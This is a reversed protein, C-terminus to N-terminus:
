INDDRIDLYAFYENLTKILCNKDVRKAANHMQKDDTVLLITDGEVKQKAFYLIYEDWIFNSRSKSKPDFNGNVFQSWVWTRFNLPIEYFQVFSAIMKQREEESVTITEGQQILDSEIAVLLAESSMQKFRDSRIYDLFETRRKKDNQFPPWCEFSPDIQKCLLNSCDIYTNEADNVFKVIQNIQASNECLTKELDCSLLYLLNGINHQTNTAKKNIKNFFMWAIQSEPLPLMRFCQSDGTHKYMIKCASACSKFSRSKNEDHLHKILEMAVTSSMMATIGKENEKEIIQSILDFSSSEDKNSVINRYANTDFVVIM